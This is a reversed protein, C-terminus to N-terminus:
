TRNISGFDSSVISTSNSPFLAGNGNDPLTYGLIMQGELETDRSTSEQLHLRSDLMNHEFLVHRMCGKGELMREQMNRRLGSKFDGM